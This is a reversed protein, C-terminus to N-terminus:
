QAEHVVATMSLPQPEFDMQRVGALLLLENVISSMKHATRTIATLLEQQKAETFTAWNHLLMESFGIVLGLPSQLDHAVTHAFADLEENAAQLQTNLQRLALMDDFRALAIAIAREMERSDPPKLLYANVGALSAQEVLEATEYATLIVIPTPCCQQIQHAAIIGDIEPMQIDMVVINPRLLATKEVAQAGTTTVGVVTYDLEALIGQIMEGVLYDDEAVLVRINKRDPM